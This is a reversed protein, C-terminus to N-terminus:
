WDFRAIASAEDLRIGQVLKDRLNMGEVYEMVMVIQSDHHFATYLPAINPHNLGALVRIERTFRDLTEKDSSLSSLLVKMAEVRDSITHRVRFVQGMGGGGLMDIIEYSGVRTGAAWAM